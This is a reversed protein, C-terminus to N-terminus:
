RRRVATSRSRSSPRQSWWSKWDHKSFRTKVEEDDVKTVDVYSTHIRLIDRASVTLRPFESQFEESDVWTIKPSVVVLDRDPIEHPDTSFYDLEGTIYSGDNMDLGVFV